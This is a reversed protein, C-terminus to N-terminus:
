DVLPIGGAPIFREFFDSTNLVVSETTDACPFCLRQEQRLSRDISLCVRHDVDFVLSLPSLTYFNEERCHLSALVARERDQSPFPHDAIEAAAALGMVFRDNEGSYSFSCGVATCKANLKKVAAQWEKHSRCEAHFYRLFPIDNHMLFSHIFLSYENM